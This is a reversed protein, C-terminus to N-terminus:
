WRYGSLLVILLAWFMLGSAAVMKARKTVLGTHPRGSHRWM